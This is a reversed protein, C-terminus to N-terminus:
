GGDRGLRLVVATQDDTQPNGCSFTNVADFVVALLQEASAQDNKEVLKELRKWGFIERSPAQAEILGDTVILVTDGPNLHLTEQFPAMMSEGLGLPFTSARLRQSEGSARILQAEHGAGVYQLTSDGADFRCVFFTVFRGDSVDRSIFSNLELLATTLDENKSLLARAYARTEAMLLAPGIGHGSVDAVIMLQSGDPCSIFDYYDGSTLDAPRCDGACSYAKSQRPNEPFLRFQIDRAIQMQTEADKADAVLQTRGSESARSGALIGTLVMGTFAYLNMFVQLDFLSRQVGETAFAGTNRSTGWIAVCAIVLNGSFVTKADFRLLLWFLVILPIYLLGEAVQEPLLGGFVCHSVAALSLMAAFAETPSSTVSFKPSQFALRDARWSLIVPTVIMMGTLDGLWWTSWNTLGEGISIYGGLILSVAGVTAAVSCSVIAIVLWRLADSVNHFPTDIELFRQALSVALVAELTNGTAFAFGTLPAVDTTLTTLLAGLWIGPWVRNGFILLAGLAIGSPPWVATSNGPPIAFALGVM